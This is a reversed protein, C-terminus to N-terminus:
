KEKNNKISIYNTEQIQTGIIPKGEKIIAKGMSDFFLKNVRTELYEKDLKEKILYEQLAKEDIIKLTKRTAKAINVKQGDIDYKASYQGETAMIDLIENQLNDREIKLPNIVAKLQEEYENIKQRLDILQKTKEKLM